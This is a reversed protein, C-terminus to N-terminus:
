GRKQAFGAIAEVEPQQAAQAVDDSEREFQAM